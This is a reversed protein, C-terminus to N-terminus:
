SSSTWASAYSTHAEPFEPVIYTVDEGMGELTRTEERRKEERRKEGIL